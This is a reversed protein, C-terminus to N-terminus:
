RAVEAERLIRELVEPITEVGYRNERKLRKLAKLRRVLGRPVTITTLDEDVM